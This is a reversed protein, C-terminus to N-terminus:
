KLNPNNPDLRKMERLAKDIEEQPLSEIKSRIEWIEYEDKFKAVSDNSVMIAEALLKNSVLVELVQYMIRADLPKTYAAQQILKADQSKLASVLNSSAIVPPVGLGFGALAGGSM